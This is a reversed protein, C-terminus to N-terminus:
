GPIEPTVLRALNNLSQQWGLYCQEVPIVDPIGSQEIRIDTGCIVAKLLVTVTIEGPLNPDDFKDTYRLFENPRLEMYEGGFSHGNGTSFNVFTMRFTGGVKPEMHHVKCVFGEPPIWQAMADPDLFARYIKEPKAAIVRHLHVTSPM